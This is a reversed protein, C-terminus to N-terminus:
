IFFICNQFIFNNIHCKLFTGYRNKREMQTFMTIIQSFNNSNGLEAVVSGRLWVAVADQVHVRLRHMTVLEPKVDSIRPRGKVDFYM